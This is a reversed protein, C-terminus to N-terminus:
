KEYYFNQDPLKGGVSKPDAEVLIKLFGELASKMDEGTLLTINCEPVAKQAIKANDLIGYKEILEGAKQPDNNVSDASEKYESLFKDIIERNKDIFDAKAGIVGMVLKSGNDTKNWEDNLDIVKKLGEVKSQAVTAFPQPLLGAQVKGSALLSVVEAHESKWEITLDKEPDLGNERLLYNLIYEPTAGKGSAAITKGKLDSFSKISDDSSMISLVGLTNVALVRFRGETKNYLVSAMNAPMAFVDSDNKMVMAVIEDPSAVTRFEYNVSTEKNESKEMLPALGMGTPGKLSLVRLPATDASETKSSAQSHTQSESQTQSNNIVKNGTTDTAGQGSCSALVLSAVVPYIITRLVKKLLM